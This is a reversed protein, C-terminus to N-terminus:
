TRALPDEGGNGTGGNGTGANGPVVTLHHIGAGPRDTSAPREPAARDRTAARDEATSM